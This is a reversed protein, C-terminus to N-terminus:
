ALLEKVVKNVLGGDAKGKVTPMIKGMVKGMDKPSAAGTADIADQVITRLEDETLQTPQYARLIEIEALEIVALDERNADQYQQASDQRTKVGKIVVSLTMEDTIEKKTELAILKVEAMLSRLVTLKQKEKARMADKIDSQLQEYIAM